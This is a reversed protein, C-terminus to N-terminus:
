INKIDKESVEVYVSPTFDLSSSLVEYEMINTDRFVRFTEDAVTHHDQMRDGFTHTFVLEPKLEKKVEQLLLRIKDCHYPLLRSQFEEMRINEFPVGLIKASEKMYKSASEMKEGATKERSAIVLYQIEPNGAGILRSITAGCGFEIDDAHALDSSCM